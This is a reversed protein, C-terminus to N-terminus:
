GRDVAVYFVLDGLHVTQLARNLKVSRRCVSAELRLVVSCEVMATYRVLFRLAFPAVPVTTQPTSNLSVHHSLKSARLLALPVETELYM